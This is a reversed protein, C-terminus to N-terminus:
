QKFREKLDRLIKGFPDGAKEQMRRLLLADAERVAKDKEIQDGAKDAEEWRQRIGELDSAEKEEGEERFAESLQDLYEKM